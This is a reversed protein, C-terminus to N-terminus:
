RKPDGTITRGDPKVDPSTDPNRKGAQNEDLTKRQAKSSAVRECEKNLAEVFAHTGRQIRPGIAFGFVRSAVGVFEGRMHVETKHDSVARFALRTELTIGFFHTMYAISSNPEFHLLVQDSITTVAGASRIRMRSGEKWPESLWQVHTIETCRRWADTDTYVSFVTTLPCNVLIRFEFLGKAGSATSDPQSRGVVGMYPSYTFAPNLAIVSYPELRPEPHDEDCAGM